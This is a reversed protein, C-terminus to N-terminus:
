REGTSTSHTVAVSKKVQRTPAQTTFTMGGDDEDVATGGADEDNDDDVPDPDTGTQPIQLRLITNTFDYM